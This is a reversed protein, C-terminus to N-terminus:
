GRQVIEYIFFPRDSIPKIFKQLLFTDEEKDCLINMEQLVDINMTSFEENARLLDYYTAPFSVFEVGNKLLAKTTQILDDTAFAVHHIGPGFSDVNKQVKSGSQYNEPEAIVMTLNKDHSQNIKMLMGTKNESSRNISQVINLELLETLIVLGIIVNM